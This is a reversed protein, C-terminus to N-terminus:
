GCREGLRVGIREILNLFLNAEEMAEFYPASGAGYGVSSQVYPTYAYEKWVENMREKSPTKEGCIARIM